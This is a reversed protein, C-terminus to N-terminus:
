GTITIVEHGEAAADILKYLNARAESANLVTM